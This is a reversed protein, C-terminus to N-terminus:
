RKNEPIVCIHLLCRTLDLAFILPARNCLDSVRPGVPLAMWCYPHQETDVGSLLIDATFRAEYLGM